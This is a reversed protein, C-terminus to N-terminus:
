VSNNRKNSRKKVIIQNDLNKKFYNSRTTKKEAHTRPFRNFGGCCSTSRVKSMSSLTNQKRNLLKYNNTSHLRCRSQAFYLSVCEKFFVELLVVLVLCTLFLFMTTNGHLSLFSEVTSSM